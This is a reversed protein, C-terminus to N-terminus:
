MTSLLQGDRWDRDPVQVIPFPQNDFLVQQRVERYNCYNPAKTRNGNVVMRLIRHSADPEDPTRGPKIIRKFPPEIHHCEESELTKMRPCYYLEYGNKELMLGCIYDEGGQSDNDTDWTPVVSVMPVSLSVSLEALTRTEVSPVLM